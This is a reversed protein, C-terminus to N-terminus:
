KVVHTSDGNVRVVQDFGEFTNGEIVVDKSDLLNIAAPVKAFLGGRAIFKNNRVVAGHADRLKLAADFAGRDGKGHIIFTNNEIIAGPGFLFAASRGDVEIVSDRLVNGGGGMQVGRWGARIHMKEVLYNSTKYHPPQQDDAKEAPVDECKGMTPWCQSGGLMFGPAAKEARLEIGINPARNGPVDIRGNRITVRLGGSGNGIGIMNQSESVLAHGQLDIRYADDPTLRACPRQASCEIKLLAEGSFHRTRGAHVDIVPKRRIDSGLCYAGPEVIRGSLETSNPRSLPVPTCEQGGASALGAQMCLLAVISKM